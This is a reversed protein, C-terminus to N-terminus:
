KDIFFGKDIVFGNGSCAPCNKEGKGDCLSCKEKVFLFTKFGNGNCQVCKIKGRGSCFNCKKPTYGDSPNNSSRNNKVAKIVLKTSYYPVGPTNFAKKTSKIIKGVIKGLPAAYLNISTFAILIVLTFIMKSLKM